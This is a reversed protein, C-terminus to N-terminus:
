ETTKPNCVLRVEGGIAYGNNTDDAWFMGETFTSGYGLFGRTSFRLYGHTKEEPTTGNRRGSLPFFVGGYSALKNLDNKIATKISSVEDSPTTFPLYLYGRIEKGNLTFKEYADTKTVNTNLYNLENKSLTYWIQGNENGPLTPIGGWDVFNGKFYSIDTYTNAGYYNGTDDTSLGFLGYGTSTKDGKVGNVCAWGGPYSQYDWQNEEFGWKDPDSANADYYLNGKSFYVYKDAAIKFKGPLAGAPVEPSTEMVVEIATGTTPNCYMSNEEINKKELKKDVVYQSFSLTQEGPILPMYYDNGETYNSIVIETDSGTKVASAFDGTKANFKMSTYAGKLRVKGVLPAGDTRSFAFQAIANKTTMATSGLDTTGVPVEYESRGYMLQFKDAITALTGDQEEAISFTYNGSADLTFKNSGVYYYHLFQKVSSYNITGSFKVPDGAEEAKVYGLYGTKEGVIHIMDGQKWTVNGDATIDTKAGNDVLLTVDITEGGVPKQVDAKRCQTMFMAACALVITMITRKM